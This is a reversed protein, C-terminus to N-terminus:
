GERGRVLELCRDVMRHAAEAPLGGGPREACNSAFKIVERLGGALFAALVEAAEDEIASSGSHEGRARALPRCIEVLLEHFFDALRESAASPRLNRAIPECGISIDVLRHVRSSPDDVEGDFVAARIMDIMASAVVDDRDAFHLYFVQRSASAREAIELVSISEIRRERVLALAAEKLKAQVRVSRPDLSRARSPM